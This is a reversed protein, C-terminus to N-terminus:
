TKRRSSTPGEGPEGEASRKQGASKPLPSLTVREQIRLELNVEQNSGFKPRYSRISYRDGLAMNNHYIRTITGETGSDIMLDELIRKKLDAISEEDDLWPISISVGPQSPVSVNLFGPSNAPTVIPVSDDPPLPKPDETPMVSSSIELNSGAGLQSYKSLKDRRELVTKKDGETLIALVLSGLAPVKGTTDRVNLETVIQKIAASVLDDNKLSILNVEGESSSSRMNLGGSVRVMVEISVLTPM